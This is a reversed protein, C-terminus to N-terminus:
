ENGGRAHRCQRGEFVLDFALEQNALSEVRKPQKPPEYTWEIRLCAPTDCPICQRAGDCVWFVVNSLGSRQGGPNLDTILGSTEEACDFHYTVTDPGGKVDIRCFGPGDTKAKLGVVKGEEEVFETVTISVSEFEFTHPLTTTSEGGPIGLRGSSEDYELKGVQRCSVDSLPVSNGLVGAMNALSGHYIISSSDDLSSCESAYRLTTTLYESLDNDLIAPVTLRALAPNTCSRIAITSQGSAPADPSFKSFGITLSSESSFTDPVGTGTTAALQLDLTGSAASLGSQEVDRLVAYTGTGTALGAAGVVGVRGLVARRSLDTM